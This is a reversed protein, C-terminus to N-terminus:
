NGHKSKRGRLKMLLARETEAPRAFEYKSAETYYRAFEDAAPLGNAYVFGCNRCAVVDYGDLLAGPLPAFRQRHLIASERAACIPCARIM